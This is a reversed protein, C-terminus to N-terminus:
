DNDAEQGDPQEPAQIVELIVQAIQLAQEQTCFISLDYNFQLTYIDPAKGRDLQEFSIQVDECYKLHCNVTNRM